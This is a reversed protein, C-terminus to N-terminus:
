SEPKIVTYLTADGRQVLLLAPKKASKASKAESLFDDVSEVKRHNV